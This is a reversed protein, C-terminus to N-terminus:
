WGSTFMSLAFLVWYLLAFFSIALIAGLFTAIFLQVAKEINNQAIKLLISIYVIVVLASILIM